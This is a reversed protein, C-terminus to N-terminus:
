LEVLTFPEADPDSEECRSWQEDNDPTPTPKWWSRTICLECDRVDYDHDPAARRFAALAAADAFHGVIWWEDGDGAIDIAEPLIPYMAEILSAAPEGVQKTLEDHYARPLEAQIFADIADTM